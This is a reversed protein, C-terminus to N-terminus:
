RSRVWLGPTVAHPSWTPGLVSGARAQDLGVGGPAPQPVALWIDYREALAQLQDPTADAPLLVARQGCALAVRHPQAALVM